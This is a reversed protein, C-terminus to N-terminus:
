LNSGENPFMANTEDRVSRCCPDLRARVCRSAELVCRCRSLLAGKGERPPRGMSRCGVRPNAHSRHSGMALIRLGRLARGLRGWLQPLPNDAERPPSGQVGQPLDDVGTSAARSALTQLGGAAERAAKAADERDKRFAAKAIAAQAEEKARILDLIESPSGRAPNFVICSDELM